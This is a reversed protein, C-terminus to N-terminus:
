INQKYMRKANIREEIFDTLRVWNEGEIDYKWQYSGNEIIYDIKDDKIMKISNSDMFTEINLKDMELLIKIKDVQYVDENIMDEVLYIREVDYLDFMFESVEDLKSSLSKLLKIKSPNLKIGINITSKEFKM